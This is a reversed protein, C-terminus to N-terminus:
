VLENILELILLQIKMDFCEQTILPVVKQIQKEFAQQLQNVNSKHTDQLDIYPKETYKFNYTYTNNFYKIIAHNSIQSTIIKNMEELDFDFRYFQVFHYSQKEIENKVLQEIYNQRETQIKSQIQDFVEVTKVGDYQIRQFQNSNELGQVIQPLNLYLCYEIFYHNATTESTKKTEMIKKIDKKYDLDLEFREDFLTVQEDFSITQKEKKYEYRQLISNIEKILQDLKKTSIEHLIPDIISKKVDAKQISKALIINNFCNDILGKIILLIKQSSPIKLNEKENLDEYNPCQYGTFHVTYDLQQYKMNLAQEKNKFKLWIRNSDLYLHDFNALELQQVKTVLSQVLVLLQGLHIRGLNSSIFYILDSLRICEERHIKYKIYNEEQNYTVEGIQDFQLIKQLEELNEYTYVDESDYLFHKM